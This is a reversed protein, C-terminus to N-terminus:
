RRRKTTSKRRKATVGRRKPKRKSAGGKRRKQKRTKGGYFWGTSKPKNINNYEANIYNTIYFDSYQLKRIDDIVLSYGKGKIIEELKTLIDYPTPNM